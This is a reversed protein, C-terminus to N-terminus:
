AVSFESAFREGCEGARIVLRAGAPPPAPLAKLAGRGIVGTADGRLTGPRRNLTQFVVCYRETLKILQDIKDKPADRDLESTYSRGQTAETEADSFNRYRRSIRWITCLTRIGGV